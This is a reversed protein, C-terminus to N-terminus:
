QITIPPSTLGGGQLKTSVGLTTVTGGGADILIGSSSIKISASGVKLEIETDSTITIKQTASIDATDGSKVEFSEGTEIKGKKNIYLDHNEGVYNASDKQVIVIKNKEIGKIEDGHIHSFKNDEIEKRETGSQNVSTVASSGYTTKASSSELIHAQNKSGRIYKNGSAVGFDGASESRYTSETNIDIHGDVQTSKGGGVYGRHEGSILKINVENAESDHQHTEYSGSSTLKQSFAKDHEEPNLYSWSHGGCEDWSGQVYGYKPVTEGSCVATNPLKSNHKKTM